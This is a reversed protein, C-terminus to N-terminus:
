RGWLGLQTAYWQDRELYGCNKGMEPDAEFSCRKKAVKIPAHITQVDETSQQPKRFSYTPSDPTVIIYSNVTERLVQVDICLKTHTM